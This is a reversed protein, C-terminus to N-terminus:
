TDYHFYIYGKPCNASSSGDATGVKVGYLELSTRAAAATAGGTGGRAVGLTGSTIQAASHNHTGAAKGNWTTRETATVHVTTNGKHSIFDSIAKTIKGMITKMTDGNVLTALAGAALITPTQNDTTVNPVNGLGVQTKTVSHPNTHDALHDSLDAQRAYVDGEVLYATVNEASGIIVGFTMTLELVRGTDAAPFFDTGEDSYRYAYLYENGDGDEAFVGLETGYFSADIASSAASATLLLYGNAALSDDVATIGMSLLPNELDTMQTHDEIAPTGNGFVIRTFTISGGNLASVIMAVGQSTLAPILHNANPM